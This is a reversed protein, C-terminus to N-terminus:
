RTEPLTALTKTLLYQFELGAFFDAVGVREDRGHSRNENAEFFVGSVGYTPIGANRLALGDTAGTSMTPIAVVGPWMRATLQEIAGVVDPRLASPASPRAQGLATVTVKDDGITRELAQQVKAPDSGPMMRCNVTARATQPLANEAHGGELLTAVCTTRLQANFFPRAASLRAAAALDPPNAAVARMDRSTDGTELGATREFYRRTVPNVEVPFDFQSLRVLAAALHYIANDRSPLSSHGGPNKSELRFSQYVKEASQVDQYLRRGGTSVGDGGENICFDADILERHTELLWRVGNHDGGEEDSTLAVIIDRDPQFGERKLRILNAMFMAAMYKDDATGRGYFYGDQELFTFPDVSWDERRAEVVDLHALLLIPRGRGTGRMRAVLNGKRPAPALVRVEDVSFGASRLRAAMAEAARTNDGSSDTTNIEVLERFIDRALQQDPSLTSQAAVPVALLAALIAVASTRVRM